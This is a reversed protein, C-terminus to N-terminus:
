WRVADVKEAECGGDMEREISVFEVVDVVVVRERKVGGEVERFAELCFLDTVWVNGMGGVFEEPGVLMEDESAGEDLVGDVGDM